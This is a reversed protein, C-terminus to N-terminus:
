LGGRIGEDFGEFVWKDATEKSAKEPVLAVRFGADAKEYIWPKTSICRFLGRWFKVKSKKVVERRTM